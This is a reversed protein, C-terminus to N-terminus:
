LLHGSSHCYVFDCFVPFTCNEMLPLARSACMEKITYYIDLVDDEFISQWREVEGVRPLKKKKLLTTTAIVTPHLSLSVSSPTNCAGDDESVM